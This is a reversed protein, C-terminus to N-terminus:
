DLTSTLRGLADIRVRMLQVAVIKFKVAQDFRFDYSLNSALSMNYEGSYNYSNDCCGSAFCLRAPQPFDENDDFGQEYLEVNIKQIDNLDKQVISDATIKFKVPKVYDQTQLLAANDSTPVALLMVETVIGQPSNISWTIDTDAAATEWGSTLETFRRTIVSYKGRADGFSLANAPTMQCCRYMMSCKGSISPVADTGNASANVAPHLSVQIELRNSGLYSPFVGQGQLDKGHRLLYASNPLLIPIMVTRAANSANAEWGLYTKGFQRADEVKMQQLHDCLFTFYDCVFVEQGASLLRISKIIHLGPYEKLASANQPVEVKLVCEKLVRLSEPLYISFNQSDHNLIANLKEERWVCVFPTRIKGYKRPTLKDSQVPGTSFSSQLGWSRILNQPNEFSMIKFVTSFYFLHVFM